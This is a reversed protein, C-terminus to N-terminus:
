QEQQQEQCSYLEQQRELYNYQGQQQEQGVAGWM